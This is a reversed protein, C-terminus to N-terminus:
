VKLRERLQQTFEGAPVLSALDQVVEARSLAEDNGPLVLDPSLELLPAAVFVRRTIEPDPIRLGPEDIIVDGFLLIDLDITRSAHADSTRARGLEAEVRRLVKDKLSWASTDTVIQAVGNLFPPQEPRGLPATWYFTSVAVIPTMATLLSLARAVSEEPAINSGVGVFVGDQSM